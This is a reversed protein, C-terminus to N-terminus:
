RVPRGVRELEQNYADIARSLENSRPQLARQLQSHRRVKENFANVAAPSRLNVLPRARDIEDGLRKLLAMEPALAAELSDIRADMRNLSAKAHAPISFNRDSVSTLAIPDSSPSTPIARAVPPTGGVPIARPVVTAEQAEQDAAEGRPPNSLDSGPRNGSGISIPTPSPKQYGSLALPASSNADFRSTSRNGSSSSYSSRTPTVSPAPRSYGTSSSSSSRSSSYSRTSSSSSSAGRYILTALAVFGLLVLSLLIGWFIQATVRTAKSKKKYANSESWAPAPAAKTLPKWKDTKKERVKSDSPFQGALVMAEIFDLTFPGRVTGLYSVHYEKPPVIITM